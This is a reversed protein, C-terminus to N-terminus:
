RTGRCPKWSGSRRDSGLGGWGVKVGSWGMGDSVDYYRDLHYSDYNDHLEDDLEMLDDEAAIKRDYIEQTTLYSFDFLVRQMSQQRANLQTGSSLLPFGGPFLVLPYWSNSVVKQGSNKQSGGQVGEGVCRDETTTQISTSLPARPPGFPSFRLINLCFLPPISTNCTCPRCKRSQNFLHGWELGGTRGLARPRVTGLRYWCGGSPM